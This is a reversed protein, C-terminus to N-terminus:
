VSADPTPDSVPTKDVQDLVALIGYVAATATGATVVKAWLYRSVGACNVSLTRLTGTVASTIQTFSADTIAAANDSNDDDSAVISIDITSGAAVAGVDAIFTVEDFDKSDLGSGTSGDSNYLTGTATRSEPAYLSEFKALEVLKQM